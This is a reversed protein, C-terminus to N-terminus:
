SDRNGIWDRSRSLSFLAKVHTLFGPKDARGASSSDGVKQDTSRWARDVRTWLQGCLEIRLAKSEVTSLLRGCLNM